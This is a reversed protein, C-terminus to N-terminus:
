FKEKIMLKNRGESVGVPPLFYYYFIIIIIVLLTLVACFEALVIRGGPSYIRSILVQQTYGKFFKQVQIM